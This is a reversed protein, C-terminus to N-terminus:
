SQATLKSLRPPLEPCAARVLCSIPFSMMIFNRGAAGEFFFWVYGVLLGGFGIKTFLAYQHTTDLVVGAVFSGAIGMCIFLMGLVGV